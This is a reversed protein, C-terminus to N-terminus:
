PLWLLLMAHGDILTEARRPIMRMFRPEEPEDRTWACGMTPHYEHVTMSEMSVRTDIMPISVTASVVPADGNADM